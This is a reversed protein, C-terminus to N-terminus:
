LIFFKNKDSIIEELANYNAIIVKLFIYALNETISAKLYLIIYTYKTLRNIIVLIFDYEIRTILNRSLLLKIVFDLIISTWPTKLIDLLQIIKYLIYCLAKNRIYM